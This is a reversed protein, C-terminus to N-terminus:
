GVPSKQIAKAAQWLVAGCSFLGLPLISTGNHERSDVPWQLREGKELREHAIGAYIPVLEAIEDMIQAPSSYDWSGTLCRGLSALIPWDPRSGAVPDIAQHVMQVRRETSTFTGTKEAFSVNPLIM